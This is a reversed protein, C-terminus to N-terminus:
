RCLMSKLEKIEEKLQVIEYVLLDTYKVAYYDGNKVVFEPAISLLEQAIVGYRKEGENTKYEFQKYDIDIRHKPISEINCKLNIDSYLIFDYAFISRSGLNVDKTAGTYPVFYMTDVALSGTDVNVYLGYGVKVAGIVTSSAVPLNSWAAHGQGTVDMLFRGSGSGLTVCINNVTLRRSGLDVDMTAGSYPVFGSLSSSFSVTNGTRSLGNTFTLPAEYNTSVYLQNSANLKVSTGDIKVGGLVTTTATQLSYGAGPIREWISGNYIIDDGVSYAVSNFTGATTVRYYWGATGSGNSLYPTNTSANWTGKYIQSATVPAWEAVGNTNICKLYYGTVAGSRLAISSTSTGGTVYLDRAGSMSGVMVNLGDENDPLISIYGQDYGAGILLINSNETFRDYGKYSQGTNLGNDILSINSSAIANSYFSANTSLINNTSNTALPGNVFTTGNWKPINHTTLGSVTLADTIGYGAITTPHNGNHWQANNTVNSLGVDEKTYDYSNVTIFQGMQNVFIKGSGQLVIDGSLYSYTNSGIRTHSYGIDNLTYSLNQTGDFSLSKSGITITRATQLKTATSANGIFGGTSTITNGFANISGSQAIELRKQSNTYFGFEWHRIELYSNSSNDNSRVSLNIGEEPNATIDVIGFEDYTDKSYFNFQAYGTSPTVIRFLGGDSYTGINPNGVILAKNISVDGSDSIRLKDSGYSYVLNMTDFAAIKYVDNHYIGVEDEQIYDTLIQIGGIIASYSNLQSCTLSFTGLDVSSTAGVYPVFGSISGSTIYTNSDLSGDGKIFQSSTGIGTSTLNKSGDTFVVKSATLVTNRISGTFTNLSTGSQTYSSPNSIGGNSTLIGALNLGGTSAIFNTGANGINTLINNNLNLTGYMTSGDRGVFVEKSGLSSYNLVWIESIRFGSGRFTAFDNFTFRAKSIGYTPASGGTSAQFIQSSNTSTETVTKWANLGTDYVELKIYNSRWGKAGFSVGIRTTYQFTKHFNIELVYGNPMTTAWDTNDYTAYDPAGNFLFTSPTGYNATVSGGRLTLYAIDNNIFPITTTGSEPHTDIIINTLLNSGTGNIGGNFTKDGAITQAGNTLIGGYLASAPQLSLVQGSISMGNANPSSGIAGITVPAHSASTIDSMFAITERTTSPTFYLRSSSFEIAGSEPTTLNVGSTLKIPARNATASGAKIHLSATPSTTGIGVNGSSLITVRNTGQTNLLLSAGAFPVDLVTNGNSTDYYNFFGANSRFLGSKGTDTKLSLYLPNTNAQYSRLEGMVTSGGNTNLNNGAGITGSVQFTEGPSTTGIGVNGGSKFRVIENNTGNYFIIDNDNNSGISSRPYGYGATFRFRYSRDVQIDSGFVTLKSDPIATGIGVNTGDTYIPSNSLLKTTGSAFPIYGQTLNYLKVGMTFIQAQSVAGTISGDALIANQVDATTLLRLEPATGIKQYLGDAKASFGVFGSAPSTLSSVSQLELQALIKKSAM